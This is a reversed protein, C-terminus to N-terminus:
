ELGRFVAWLKQLSVTELAGCDKRLPVSRLRAGIARTRRTRARFERPQGRMPILRMASLCAVMYKWVSSLALKYICYRRSAMAVRNYTLNRLSCETTDCTKIRNAITSAESCCCRSELSGNITYNQRSNSVSEIVILLAYSTIPDRTATYM